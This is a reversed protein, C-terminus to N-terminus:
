GVPRSFLREVGKSMSKLSWWGKQKEGDGRQGGRETAASDSVTSNPESLNRTSTLGQGSLTSPAGLQGCNEQGAEAQAVLHPPSWVPRPVAISEAAQYSLGSSWEEVPVMSHRGRITVATKLAVRINASLTESVNQVFYEPVEITGALELLEDLAGQRLRAGKDVMMELLGEHWGQNKATRWLIVIVCYRYTASRRWPEAM